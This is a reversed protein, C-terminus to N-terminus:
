HSSRISKFLEVTESDPEADLESLLSNKFRQYQRLAAAREGMAALGKMIIRCARESCPDMALMRRAYRVADAYEVRGMNREAMWCLLDRMTNRLHFQRDELLTAYFEPVFDGNYLEIARIARNEAAHEMGRRIYAKWEEILSNFQWLDVTIQDRSLRLYPGDQIITDSGLIKRLKTLYVRLSALAKDEPAEPWLHSIISDRTIGEKHSLLLMAILERSKYSGLIKVSSDMPRSPLNLSMGGFTRVEVVERESIDAYDKISSIVNSFEGQRESIDRYLAEIAPVADMRKLLEVGEILIEEGDSGGLELGFPILIESMMPVEGNDILLSRSLSLSQLAGEKDGSCLQILSKVGVAIGYRTGLGSDRTMSVAEEILDKAEDLNNEALAIRAKLMPFSSGCFGSMESSEILEAMERAKSVNGRKLHIKIFVLMANSRLRPNNIESAIDLAKELCHASGTMDGKSFLCTGMYLLDIAVLPDRHMLEAEKMSEKFEMMASGLDGTTMLSLGLNLRSDASRRLLGYDRVTDRAKRLHAKATNQEGKRFYVLGMNTQVRYLAEPAVNVPIEGILTSSAELSGDLLGKRRLLLPEESRLSWYSSNRETALEIGRRLCEEAYDIELSGLASHFLIHYTLLAENTLEHDLLAELLKETQPQNMNEKGQFWSLWNLEAKMKLLDAKSVETREAIRLAEKLCDWSRRYDMVVDKLEMAIGFLRVALEATEEEPLLNKTLHLATDSEHGPKGGLIASLRRHLRRRSDRDMIRYLVQRILPHSFSLVDEARDLMGISVLVNVQKMGDSAPDTDLLERLTHIEFRDGIVAACEMVDIMEPELTSLRYQVVSELTKSLHFDLYDDDVRWHDDEESFRIINQRTLAKLIEEIFLPNGKTIHALWNKFQITTKSSLKMDLLETVEDESLNELEMIRMLRKASLDETIRELTSNEVSSRIGAVLVVPLDSIRDALRRMLDLGAESMWQVDDLLVVVPKSRSLRHFFDLFALAISLNDSHYSSQVEVPYLENLEPMMSMLVVAMEPTIYRAMWQPTRNGHCLYEEVMKSITSYTRSPDEESRGRLIHFGSDKIRESFHDLLRSKGVGIEGRVFITSGSYELADELRDELFALEKQRGAFPLFRKM